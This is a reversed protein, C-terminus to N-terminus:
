EEFQKLATIRQRIEVIREREIMYRWGGAIASAIITLIMWLWWSPTLAAHRAMAEIIVYAFVCAFFCGVVISRRVFMQEFRIIMQEQEVITDEFKALRQLIRYMPAFLFADMLLVTGIVIWGFPDDQIGQVFLIGVACVLVLWGLYQNLKIRNNYSTVKSEVIMRLEERRLLEERELRESLKDWSQKLEDLNM